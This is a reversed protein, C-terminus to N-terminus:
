SANRARMDRAFPKRAIVHYIHWHKPGSYSSGDREDEVLQEVEFDKLLEDIEDASHFTMESNTAWSDRVGFLHGAFRGGPAVAEVITTWLGSFAIPSCFPLSLGAYIFEAQPLTLGELRAVKADLMGSWEPRASSILREIADVESDIALVHWGNELLILSETGDGSGLEIAQLPRQVGTSKFRGLADLFLERPPRGENARYYGSWSM